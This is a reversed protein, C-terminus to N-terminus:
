TQGVFVVLCVHCSDVQYLDALFTLELHDRKAIIALYDLEHLWSELGFLFVLGLICDARFDFLADMMAVQIGDARILM